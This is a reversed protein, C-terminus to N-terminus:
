SSFWRPPGAILATIGAAVAGGIGASTASVFPMLLGFVWTGGGLAVAAIGAFALRGGPAVKPSSEVSKSPAPQVPAGTNREIERLLRELDDDAM